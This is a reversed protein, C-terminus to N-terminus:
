PIHQITAIILDTNKQKKLFQLGLCLLSFPGHMQQVSIVLNQINSSVEPIHSLSGKSLGFLKAVSQCLTKYVRQQVPSLRTIYYGWLLTIGWVIVTVVLVHVVLPNTQVRRSASDCLCEGSAVGHKHNVVRAEHM